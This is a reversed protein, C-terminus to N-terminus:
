KKPHLQVPDGELEEKASDLHLEDYQRDYEDGARSYSLVLVRTESWTRGQRDRYVPDWLGYVRVTLRDANPDVAGFNALGDAAAGAAMESTRLSSATVPDAEVHLAEKAAAWTAADYSDGFTKATETRLELRLRPKVPKATGNTVKYDLVYNTVGSGMSGAFLPRLEGKSFQLQRLGGADADGSTLCAASSAGALVAASALLLHRNM